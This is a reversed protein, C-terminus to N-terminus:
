QLPGPKDPYPRHFESILEPAHNLNAAPKWTSEEPTGTYGTWKVLYMLPRRRRRDLRSDLITDVEHEAEGEIIVSDPVPQTHGVFDCEHM